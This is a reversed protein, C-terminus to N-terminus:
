RKNMKELGYYLIVKIKKVLSNRILSVKKKIDEIMKRHEEEWEIRQKLIKDSMKEVPKQPLPPKADQKKNIQKAIQKKIEKVENKVIVEGTNPRNKQIKNAKKPKNEKPFKM